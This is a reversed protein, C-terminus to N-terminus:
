GPSVTRSAPSADLSFNSAVQVTLSLTTSRSLSGSTGTVTLTYSSAPTGSSTSVTLTSTTYIPNHNFSATAGAPLGTVSLSVYGGFGRLDNVSIDYTTSSGQDVTESTPSGDLTFHPPAIELTVTTSYIPLACTQVGTVHG